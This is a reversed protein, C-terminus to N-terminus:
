LLLMVAFIYLLFAQFVLSGTTSSSLVTEMADKKGEANLEDVSPLNAYGWKRVLHANFFYTAGGNSRNLSVLTKYDAFYIEDSDYMDQPIDSGDMGSSAVLLLPVYGESSANVLFNRVKNWRGASMGSPDYVSVVMIAGRNLIGDHYEGYRDSISLVPVDDAKVVQVTQTSVFTWTSDPLSDLTFTEQVGDKEYTFTAEYADSTYEAASMLRVGSRFATFDMFPIYILSYVTFMVIAASVLAFAVYKRKKPRGFWNYPLFAVLGLVCLVLNKLFSQMHTLHVAEGFCGCDMEPSFVVLIVTLVTFFGLFASVIYATVKRWVGSVLAAGALAEVLAFFVGIFKASFDLFGVHFFSYYESVVLGAGVPDLLKLLGSVVFVLGLLFRCFRKMKTPFGKWPKKQGAKEERVAGDVPTDNVPLESM